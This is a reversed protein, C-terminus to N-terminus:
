QGGVSNCVKREYQCSHCMTKHTEHGCSSCPPALGGRPLVPGPGIPAGELDDWTTTEALDRVRQIRRVQDLFRARYLPVAPDREDQDTM